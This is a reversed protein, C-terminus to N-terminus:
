NADDDDDENDFGFIQDLEDDSNEVIMKSQLTRSSSTGKLYQSNPRQSELMALKIEEMEKYEPDKMSRRMAEEIDQQLRLEPDEVEEEQPWVVRPHRKRVRKPSISSARESLHNRMEEKVQPPVHESAAVKSFCGALHKMLGTLCGDKMTKGCYKCKFKTEWQGCADRADFQFFHIIAQDETMQVRSTNSQRKKKRKDIEQVDTVGTRSNHLSELLVAGSVESSDELSLAIAQKLAEDDDVYDLRRRRKQVFRKTKRKSKHSSQRNKGQLLFLVHESLFPFNTYVYKRIFM